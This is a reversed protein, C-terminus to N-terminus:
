VNRVYEAVVDADSKTISEQNSRNDLPTVPSESARSTDVKNMAALVADVDLLTDDIQLGAKM